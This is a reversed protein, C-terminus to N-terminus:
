EWCFITTRRFCFFSLLLSLLVLRAIFCFNLLFGAPLSFITLRLALMGKHFTFCISFTFSTYRMFYFYLLASALSDKGGPTACFGDGGAATDLVSSGLESLM